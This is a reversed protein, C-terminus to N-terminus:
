SVVPAISIQKAVPLTGADTIGCQELWTALIRHGYESLISEPHFQVGEFPIQRHRLGMIVGDATRATVELKPPVTAPDVMLSHYRTATIPSPLQEFVGVGDHEILSTKGHFLEPAPVVAAGVFDALAQMGLCVGFIPVAGAVQELFEPLDGATQPTGPGPSILVGAVEAPDFDELEDNRWVLTQVGLEQLYQVLNYVFSDYNDIVLIRGPVREM